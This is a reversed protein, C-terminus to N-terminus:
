KDEDQMLRKIVFEAILIGAYGTVPMYSSVPTIKKPSELSSVAWFDDNFNIKKLEIRLKKALPDGEVKSFKSIKLKDSNLKNGIGMSSIFNVKSECANKIINVKAQIDDVADIVYDYIKYNIKYNDDIKENIAVIEINEDVEKAHSKLVDVKYEGITKLSAHLQRNINSEEYKDFDIITIHKIGSRILTEFCFSGVGGVGILLINKTKLKDVDILNRLREDM